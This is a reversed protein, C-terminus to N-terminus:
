LKKSLQLEQWLAQILEWARPPIHEALGNRQGPKAEEYRARLRGRDRLARIENVSIRETPM